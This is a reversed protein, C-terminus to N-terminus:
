IVRRGDIYKQVLKKTQNDYVELTKWQGLYKGFGLRSLMRNRAFEEGKKQDERLYSYRTLIFDSYFWIIIKTKSRQTCFLSM